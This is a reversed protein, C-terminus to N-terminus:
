AGLVPAPAAATPRHPLPRTGHKQSHSARRRLQLRMQLQRRQTRLLTSLAQSHSFHQPALPPELRHIMLRVTSVRRPWGRHLRSPTSAVQMFFKYWRSCGDPGDLGAEISGRRPRSAVQMCIQVM